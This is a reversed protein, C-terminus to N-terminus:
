RKPILDPPPERKTVNEAARGFGWLTLGVLGFPVVFLYGVFHSTSGYIALAGVMTVLWLTIAVLYGTLQLKRKRVSLELHWLFIRAEDPSLKKIADELADHKAPDFADEPNPSGSV